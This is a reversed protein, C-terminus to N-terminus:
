KFWGAKIKELEKTKTELNEKLTQLDRERRQNEEHLQQLKMLLDCEAQKNEIQKQKLDLQDKLEKVEEERNQKEKLLEDQTEEWEKTKTEFEEQKKQLEMKLSEVEKEQEAQEKRQQEEEDGVETTKVIEEHCNILEVLLKDGKDWRRLDKWKLDSPGPSCPGCGDVWITVSRKARLTISEGFTFMIPNQDNLKVRLKWGELKLEEKSKNTLRLYKGDPDFEVFVETSNKNALNTNQKSVDQWETTKVIEGHCNILEVILKDGKAWRRLDNWILDSPPSHIGFGSVRIYVSKEAKLKISKEFTYM